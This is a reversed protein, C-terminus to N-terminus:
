PQENAELKKRAEKGRRIKDEIEGTLEAYAKIREQLVKVEGLDDFKKTSLDTVIRQEKRSLFDSVYKWGKSNRLEELAMGTSIEDM